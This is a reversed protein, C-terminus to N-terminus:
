FRCPYKIQLRRYAQCSCRNGTQVKFIRGKHSVFKMVAPLAIFEEMDLLSALLLIEAIHLPASETYIILRRGGCASM